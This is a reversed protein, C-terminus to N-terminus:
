RLARVIKELDSYGAMVWAGDVHPIVDAPFCIQVEAVKKQIESGRGPIFALFGTWTRTDPPIADPALAWGEGAKM